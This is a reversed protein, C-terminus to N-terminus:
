MRTGNCAFEDSNLLAQRLAEGGHLQRHAALVADGEPKPGLALRYAWVVEERTLVGCM